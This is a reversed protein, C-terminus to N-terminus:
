VAPKLYSIREIDVITLLFSQVKLVGAGFTKQDCLLCQITNNFRKIGLVVKKEGFFMEGYFQMTSRLRTYPVRLSEVPRSKWM